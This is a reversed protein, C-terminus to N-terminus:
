STLASQLLFDFRYLTNSGSKAQAHTQLHSHVDVTQYNAKVARGIGHQRLCLYYKAWTCSMRPTHSDPLGTAGRGEKNLQQETAQEDVRRRMVLGLLGIKLENHCATSGHSHPEYRAAGWEFLGLGDWGSLECCPRWRCWTQATHTKDKKSSAVRERACVESNKRM